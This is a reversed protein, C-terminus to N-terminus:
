VTVEYKEVRIKIFGGAAAAVGEEATGVVWGAGALKDVTGGDAVELADGYAIEANTALVPVKIIGGEILPYISVKANAEAVGTKPNISTVFCYGQPKEGAGAPTWVGKTATKKVLTGENTIATDVTYSGGPEAPKIRASM